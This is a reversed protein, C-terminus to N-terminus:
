EQTDFIIEFGCLFVEFHDAFSKFVKLISAEFFVGELLDIFEEFDILWGNLEHEIGDISEFMAESFDALFLDIASFGDVFNLGDSFLDGFM